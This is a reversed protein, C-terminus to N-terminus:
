LKQEDCNKTINILVGVAAAGLLMGSGGASVFPLAIGKTPLLHTVVGINIAAQAAITLVIGFALLKGFRDECRLFVMIGLVVFMVFLLIVCLAGM